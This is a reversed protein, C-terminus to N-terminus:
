EHDRGGKDTGQHERAERIKKLLEIENCAKSFDCAACDHDEEVALKNMANILMMADDAIPKLSLVHEASSTVFIVECGSVFDLAAFRGILASGLVQFTFGSKVADRSVRVWESMYRSSARIMYGKLDLVHRLAAMQRYRDYCNEEDLGTTEALIIRAYPVTKGACERIDPGILTIRGNTVIGPEGTWLMFATSEASPGGLEVGTNDALVVNRGAGSPWSPILATFRTMQGNEMNKMFEALRSLEKEFLEM